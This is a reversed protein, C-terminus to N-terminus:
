KSLADDLFRGLVPAFGEPTGGSFGTSGITSGDPALTAYLPIAGTGFREHLLKAWEASRRKPDPHDVLLEVLVFKRLRAAIEPRPFVGREV